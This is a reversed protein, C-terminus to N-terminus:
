EFIMMGIWGVAAHTLVGVGVRIGRVVLPYLSVVAERLKGRWKGEGFHRCDSCHIPELGVDGFGHGMERAALMELQSILLVKLAIQGVNGVVQWVAVNEAEMRLRGVRARM